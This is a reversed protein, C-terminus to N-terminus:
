AISLFINLALMCLLILCIGLYLKDRDFSFKAAAIIVQIIPTFLLTTIGLSVLIAADLDIIKKTLEGLGYKLENRYERTRLDQVLMWRAVKEKENNTLFEIGKEVSDITQIIIAEYDCRKILQILREATLAEDEFILVRM